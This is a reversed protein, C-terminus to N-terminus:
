AITSFADVSLVQTIKQHYGSWVYRFHQGQIVPTLSRPRFAAVCEGGEHRVSRYVLGNSGKDRLTKAFAQSVVYSNPDHLENHERVDHLTLAVENIYQRMTLETDPEQTAGLFQERHYVTESVATAVDFSGYYVGYHGATFRSAMGIHTFAAMVPTAGQGVIRDQTPILSLDGVDDKLRDNTMAEIAYAIELDAPDAVTEFLAIPPYHSAVLRHLQDGDPQVQNPELSM